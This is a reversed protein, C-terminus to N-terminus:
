ISEVIKEWEDRLAIETFGAPVRAEAAIQAVKLEGKKFASRRADLADRPLLITLARLLGKKDFRAPLGIMNAAGAVLLDDILQDVKDKTPATAEHPDTVHLMEKVTVLRAFREGHDAPYGILAIRDGTELDKYLHYGGYILYEELPVPVRRIRDVLGTEIIHDKVMKLPVPLKTHCSFHEFVNM